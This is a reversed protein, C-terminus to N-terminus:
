SGYMFFRNQQVCKRNQWIFDTRRSPSATRKQIQTKDILSRVTDAGHERIFNRLHYAATEAYGDWQGYQRVAVNGDKIIEIIHRTGM